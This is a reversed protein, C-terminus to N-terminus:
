FARITDTIQKLNMREMPTSQLVIHGNNFHIVSAHLNMLGMKTKQTHKFYGIIFAQSLM